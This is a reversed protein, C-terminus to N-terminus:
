STLISSAKSAYWRVLDNVGEPPPDEVVPPTSRSGQIKPTSAVPTGLLPAAEAGGGIVAAQQMAMLLLLQITTTTTVM